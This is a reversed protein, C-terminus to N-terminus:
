ANMTARRRSRRPLRLRIGREEATWPPVLANTRRLMGTATALDRWDIEATYRQAFDLIRVLPAPNGDGSLARLGQLYNDRYSLPIVIRQHGAASLEANM